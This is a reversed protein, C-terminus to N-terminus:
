FDKKKTKLTMQGEDTEMVCVMFQKTTGHGVAGKINM